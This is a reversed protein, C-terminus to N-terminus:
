YGGYVTYLKLNVTKSKNEILHETGTPIFVTENKKLTIQQGSLKVLATGSEVRTLQPYNHVEWDLKEGPKLNGLTVKMGRTKELVDHKSKSSLKSINNKKVYYNWILGYPTYGYKRIAFVLLKKDSTQVDMKRSLIRLFHSSPGGVIAYNKYDTWHIWYPSFDRPNLDFNVLFKGPYKTQFAKGKAKFNGKNNYCVQDITMTENEQDWKYEAKVYLCTKAKLSSRSPYDYKAVEYWTGQYKVPNFNQVTERPVLLSSTLGM